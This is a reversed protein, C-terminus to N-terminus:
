MCPSWVVVFMRYLRRAWGLANIAHPCKCHVVPGRMCESPDPTRTQVVRHSEISFYFPLWRMHCLNSTCYSYEPPSLAPLIMGSFLHTAVPHTSSLICWHQIYHPYDFIPCKLWWNAACQSPGHCHIDHAQFQSHPCHGPFTFYSSWHFLFYPHFPWQISVKSKFTLLWLLTPHCIKTSNKIQLATIDRFESSRFELSWWM